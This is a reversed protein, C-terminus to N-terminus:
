RFNRLPYHIHKKSYRFRQWMGYKKLLSFAPIPYDSIPFTKTISDRCGHKSTAILRISYIGSTDFIHKPNTNYLTDGQSFIWQYSLSGATGDTITSTNHITVPKSSYCVVPSDFSPLPPPFVKVVVSDISTCGPKDAFSTQVFYKQYWTYASTDGVTALPNAINTSSLGTAPSWNYIYAASPSTGLQVTGNPCVSVTDKLAAISPPM